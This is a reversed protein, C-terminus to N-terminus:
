GEGEEKKDPKPLDLLSGSTAPMIQALWKVAETDIAEPMWGKPRSEGAPFQMLVLKMAWPNDRIIAAHAAFM